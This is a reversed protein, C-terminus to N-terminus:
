YAWWFLVSEGYWFTYFINLLLTHNLMGMGFYFKLVSNQVSFLVKFIRYLYKCIGFYVMYEYDSADKCYKSMKVDACNYEKRSQHNHNLVHWFHGFNPGSDLIRYFVTCIKFFWSKRRKSSRCISLEATSIYKEFCDPDSILTLAPDPDQFSLFSFLFISIWLM